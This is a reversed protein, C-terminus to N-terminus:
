LTVTMCASHGNRAPALPDPCPLQAPVPPRAQDPSAWHASAVLPESWHGLSRAVAAQRVGGRAAPDPRSVSGAERLIMVPVLQPQPELSPVLLGPPPPPLSLVTLNYWGKSPVTSFILDDEPLACRQWVRVAFGAVGVWFARTSPHSHSSEMGPRRCSINLLCTAVYHNQQLM